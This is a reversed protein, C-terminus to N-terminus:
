FNRRISVWWERPRAYVGQTYGINGAYREANGSVIYTEDTLNRANLSVDWNGDNTQYAISAGVLHLDDRRLEPTNLVDNFLSSTYSWDVRFRIVATQSVEWLYGLSANTSWEPSNALETDLTLVPSGDLNLNVQSEPRLKTYETDLWGIGGSFEWNHAPLYLWEVEVGSIEAEGANRTVPGIGEFLPTIQIDHYDSFFAAANIRLRNDLGQWKLGLEYV